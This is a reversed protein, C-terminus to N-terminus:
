GGVQQTELDHQQQMPVPVQLRQMQESRSRHALMVALEEEDYDCSGVSATSAVSAMQLHQGAPLM